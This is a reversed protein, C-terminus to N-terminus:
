SDRRDAQILLSVNKELEQLDVVLDAEHATAGEPAVGFQYAYGLGLAAALSFYCLNTADSLMRFELVQAGDKMFLMNTLGAGHVGVLIEANRALRVQNEFSYDEFHLTAFGLRKLLAAVEVENAVRRRKAKSRSAYIFRPGDVHDRNKLRSVYRRRLERILDVNYNGTPATHAPAVMKPVKLKTHTPIRTVGAFSFISLADSHAKPLHSPLLMVLERLHEEVALLRPLVDTLWHFYGTSWYDCAFLYTVSSDLHRTPRLMQRLIYPRGFWNRHGRDALLDEVVRGSKLVVLDPTIYANRIEFISTPPLTREFEREFYVIDGATVNLPPPRRITQGEILVRTVLDQAM